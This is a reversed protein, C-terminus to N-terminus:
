ELYGLRELRNSVADAGSTNATETMGIPERRDPDPDGAIIPLVDGDVDTPVACGAAALLTPAVDTIDIREIEGQHTFDPGSALFIGSRTNEAAWRDPETTIEGGGIGDNVHVGPRQDVVIEPAADVYPGDYIDEGRHVDVFVPGHEDTVDRLDALLAERVATTDFAPNLYIPGQSSAVAKTEALDLAALKRERKRGAEQPVLQQLRQPVLRALQDVIGLRKAVRLANERTLGLPVLYDEVTRRRSQYGHETLWENVYFETTTPASGHDSVLVLNTDDRDAIRGLWEDVRQWGRRTPEEDWFFHHLVNLYYLTLQLFDLNREEFLALAAEFRADFLDLIADVEPGREDSASLLPDPHVRYDFREELDAALAPPQTYGGDLSRYEGEVAGPGGAVVLAKAGDREIPRPPYTTPVNLVGVDHGEDVLYDWLAATRFDHSDVIDIRGAALDVREFWFVGFGGPNKGSAYCHWNPYTVPPLCSRNEAWTSRERISALNPLTGDALWPDLLRWSAGDLGVVFTRSV